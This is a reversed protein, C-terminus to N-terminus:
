GCGGSTRWASDGARRRGGRVEGAAGGFGSASGGGEASWEAGDV